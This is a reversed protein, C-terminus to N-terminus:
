ICIIMFIVMDMISGEEDREKREDSGLRRVDRRDVLGGGRVGSDAHVSRSFRRRDGGAWDEGSGGGGRSEGWRADVEARWWPPGAGGADPGETAITVIVGDSGESISGGAATPTTRDPRCRGSSRGGDDDDYAMGYVRARVIRDNIGDALNVLSPSDIWGGRRELGHAARHRMVSFAIMMTTAM